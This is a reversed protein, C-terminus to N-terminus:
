AVAKTFLEELWENVVCDIVIHVRDTAGKNALSHPQSFNLYWTEGENMIVREGKLKFEMEPNTVIPVHIRAEGDEFGLAHDTHEKIVAGSKLKLLRVSTTPCKFNDLVEKYYPCRSMLETDEFEKAAPNPYLQQIPHTAGKQGRLPVGSWDGEYYSTNFHAIWEDDNIKNLEDKLKAPDFQFPLKIIDQM